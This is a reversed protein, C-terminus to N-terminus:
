DDDCEGGYPAFADALIKQINDVGVLEILGNREADHRLKDVAEHLTLDGISYLYARAWARELFADLPDVRGQSIAPASM